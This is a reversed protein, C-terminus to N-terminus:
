RWSQEATVLGLAFDGPDLFEARAVERKPLAEIRPQQRLEFVRRRQKDRLPIESQKVARCDGDDAGAVGRGRGASERAAESIIKALVAQDDHGAQGAPDVAGRMVTREVAARNAYDGAADVDKIGGFVFRPLGREEFAPKHEGFHGRPGLRSRPM